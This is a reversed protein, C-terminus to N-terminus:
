AMPAITPVSDARGGAAAANMLNENLQGWNTVAMIAPKRDARIAFRILGSVQNQFQARFLVGRTRPTDDHVQQETRSLV